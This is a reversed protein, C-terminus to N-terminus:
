FTVGRKMKKVIVKDLLRSIHLVEKDTLNKNNGAAIYLAKKYLSIQKDLSLNELALIIM